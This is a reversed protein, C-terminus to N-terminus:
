HRSQFCRRKTIRSDSIMLKCTLINEVLSFVRNFSFKQNGIVLQRTKHAPYVIYFRAIVLQIYIITPINYLFKSHYSLSSAFFFLSLTIRRIYEKMYCCHAHMIIIIQDLNWRSRGVGKVTTTMSSETIKKHCLLFTLRTEIEHVVKFVVFTQLCIDNDEGFDSCLVIQREEVQRLRYQKSLNSYRGDDM